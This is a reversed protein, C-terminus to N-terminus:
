SAYDEKDFEQNIWNNLYLTLSLQYDLRSKNLINSANLPAWGDSESWFKYMGESLNIIREVVEDISMNYIDSNVSM